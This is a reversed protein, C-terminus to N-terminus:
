FEWILIRLYLPRVPVLVAVLACTRVGDSSHCLQWARTGMLTTIRFQHVTPPPLVTGYALSMDCCFM